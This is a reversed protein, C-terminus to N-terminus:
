GLCLGGILFVFFFYFNQALVGTGQCPGHRVQGFWTGFDLLKARGTGKTAHGHVVEVCRNVLKKKEDEEKM